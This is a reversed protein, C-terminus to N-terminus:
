MSIDAVEMICLMTVLLIISKNIIGVAYPLYIRFIAVIIEKSVDATEM